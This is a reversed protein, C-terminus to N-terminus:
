KGPPVVTLTYTWGPNDAVSIVYGGPTLDLVKNWRRNEKQTKEVILREGNDRSIILDVSDGGSVNSVTVICKGARITAAAPEFGFRTLNIALGSQIQQAVLSKSTPSAYHAGKSAAHLFNPHTVTLVTSVLLVTAILTPAPWRRWIRPLNGILIICIAIFARASATLTPIHQKRV